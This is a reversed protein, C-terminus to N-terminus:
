QGRNKRRKEEVKEEIWKVWPLTSTACTQASESCGGPLGFAIVGTLEGSFVM